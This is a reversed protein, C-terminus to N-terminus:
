GIWAAVEGAVTNAASNLAQGVPAAEAAVVAQTAEFRKKEIPAGDRMKVADYTVRVTLSPGDLGFNVLRGALYVDAQGAAQTPTLVLRENRAAITEELLRGFLQAPKEVWSANELYAIGGEVTEVPVRLNDLKRGTEPERVVISQEKTGTRLAGQALQEAPTLTLLFPPPDGAGFSVCGALLATGAAAAFWRPYTRM